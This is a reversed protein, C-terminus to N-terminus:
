IWTVEGIVDSIGGNEATDSVSPLGYLKRHLAIHTSVQYQLSPTPVPYKQTYPRVHGWFTLTNENIYALVGAPNVLFGFNPLSVLVM